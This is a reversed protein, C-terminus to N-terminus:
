EKKLKKERDFKLSAYKFMFIMRVLYEYEYM